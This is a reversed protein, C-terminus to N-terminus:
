FPFYPHTSALSSHRFARVVSIHGYTATHQAFSPHRLRGNAGPHPAPRLAHELSHTERHAPTWHCVDRGGYAFLRSSHLAGPESIFFIKTGDALHPRRDGATVSKRVHTALHRSRVASAADSRPTCTCEEVSTGRIAAPYSLHTSRLGRYLAGCCRHCSLHSSHLGRCLTNPLTGCFAAAVSHYV